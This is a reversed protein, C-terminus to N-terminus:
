HLKGDRNSTLRLSALEPAIEAIDNFFVPFHRRVIEELDDRLAGDERALGLGLHAETKVWVMPHQPADPYNLVWVLGYAQAGHSRAFRAAFSDADARGLTFVLSATGGDPRAVEYEKYVIAGARFDEDKMGIRRRRHVPEREVM